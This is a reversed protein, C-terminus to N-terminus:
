VEEVIAVASAHHKTHSISVHISAKGAVKKADGYLNVIPKGEANNVIEVDQWSFSRGLAKAVAEKAAFRAALHLYKSEKPLSYELEAQTFIRNAFSPQREFVERIRNVEIIDTGIGLIPM